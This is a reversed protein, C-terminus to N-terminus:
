QGEGWAQLARMAQVEDLFPGTITSTGNMTAWWEGSAPDQELSGWPQVAGDQYRDVAWVTDDASTTVRFAEPGRM